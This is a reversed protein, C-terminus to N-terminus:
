VGGLDLTWWLEDGFLDEDGDAIVDERRERLINELYVAGVERSGRLVHDGAGAAELDRHLTIILAIGDNDTVECEHVPEGSAARRRIEGMAIGLHKRIISIAKVNLDKQDILLSYKTAM